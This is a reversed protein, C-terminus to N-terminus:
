NIIIKDNINITGSNLPVLYIGMDIHSYIEKLKLPVNIDFIDSNL